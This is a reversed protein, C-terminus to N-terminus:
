GQQFTVCLLMVYGIYSLIMINECLLAGTIQIGWGRLAPSNIKLARSFARCQPALNTIFDLATVIFKYAPIKCYSDSFTCYIPVFFM